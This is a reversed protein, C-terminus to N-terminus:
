NADICETPRQAPKTPAFGPPLPVGVGFPAGAMTWGLKGGWPGAAAQSKALGNAGGVNLQNFRAFVEQQQQSLPSQAGTGPAGQLMGGAKPYSVSTSMIAPDMQTWDSYMANTSSFGHHHTPTHHTPHPAHHPPRSVGSAAGVGFANMHSFGPPPLRSRVLNGDTSSVHRFQEIRAIRILILPYNHQDPDGPDQDQTNDNSGGSVLPPAMNTHMNENEIMEALAKQTEKFPDFDLDDDADGAAEGCRAGLGMGYAARQKHDLELREASLMHRPSEYHGLTLGSVGVGAGPGGVAPGASGAAGRTLLLRMQQTKHFDTFFKDMNEALYRGETQQFQTEHLM